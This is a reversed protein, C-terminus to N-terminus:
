RSSWGRACPTERSRRAPPARCRCARHIARPSTCRRAARASPCRAARRCRRVEDLLDFRRAALEVAGGTMLTPSLSFSVCPRSTMACVIPVGCADPGSTFNALPTAIGAPATTSTRPVSRGSAAAAFVAAAISVRPSRVSGRASPCTPRWCARSAAARGGTARTARRSTTVERERLGGVARDDLEVRLDLRAARPVRDAPQAAAIRRERAVAM